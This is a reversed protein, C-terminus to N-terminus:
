LENRIVQLRAQSLLRVKLQNNQSDLVRRYIGLIRNKIDEGM